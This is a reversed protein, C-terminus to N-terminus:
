KLSKQLAINIAFFINKNQAQEKKKMKVILHVQQTLFILLKKKGKLTDNIYRLILLRESFFTTFLQFTM